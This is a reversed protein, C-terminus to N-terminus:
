KGKVKILKGEKEFINKNNTIFNQVQATSATLIVTGDEKKIFPLTLKNKHILKQIEKSSIVFIELKDNNIKLEQLFHVPKLSDTSFPKFHDLYYNGGLSFLTVHVSTDAKVFKSAKDLEKDIVTYKGPREKIIVIYHQNSDRKNEIPKWEGVLSPLDTVDKEKYYAHESLICGQFFVTVLVLFLFFIKKDMIM